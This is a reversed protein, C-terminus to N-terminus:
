CYHSSSQRAGEQCYCEEDNRCLWAVSQAAVLEVTVADDPESGRAGRAVDEHRRAATHARVAENPSREESPARPAAPRLRIFSHDDRLKSQCNGAFCRNWIRLEHKRWCRAGGLLGTGVRDDDLASRLDLHLRERVRRAFRRGSAKASITRASARGDPDAPSGGVDCGLHGPPQDPQGERFTM